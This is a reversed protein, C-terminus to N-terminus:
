FWQTSSVASVSKIIPTNDEDNVVGLDVSNHNSIVEGSSPSDSDAHDM